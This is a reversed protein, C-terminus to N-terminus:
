LDKDQDRYMRVKETVESFSFHECYRLEKSLKIKQDIKCNPYM